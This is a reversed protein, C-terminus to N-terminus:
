EKGNHYFVFLVVSVSGWATAIARLDANDHVFALITFIACMVFAFWATALFIALKINM